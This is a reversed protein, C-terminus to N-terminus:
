NAVIGALTVAEVVAKLIAYLCKDAWHVISLTVMHMMSPLPMSAGIFFPALIIFVDEGLDVYTTTALMQTLRVECGRSLYRWDSSTIWFPFVGITQLTQLLESPCDRPIAVLNTEPLFSVEVLQGSVIASLTHGDFPAVIASLANEGLARMAACLLSRPVCVVCLLLPKKTVTSESSVFVWGDDVYEPM